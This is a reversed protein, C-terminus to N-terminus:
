CNASRAQHYLNEPRWTFSAPVPVLCPFVSAASAANLPASGSVCIRIASVGYHRVNPYNAIAVYFAPIGPFITPHHHKIAELIQDTRMTPLLVLTCALASSLNMCDTIGYSHSLPLVGLIVERGRRASPMWHRVQAVNVVLNGHSLMVGKPTDTTGSTYQLLALDRSTTASELPISQHSHLLQQFNHFRYQLPSAMNRDVLPKEGNQGALTELSQTAASGATGDILSALLVRQRMPLYERVDTYIVHKISTGACVREVIHRYAELTLLVQAGSDHLQYHIERENSLPSGLVVIAGAKLTGYFSIICQPVNPLVIAVRDGAQIGAERLAHAFRNSLLDLERYSIKQGFFIIAPRHSM